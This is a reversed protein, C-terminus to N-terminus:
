PKKDRKTREKSPQSTKAQKQSHENLISQGHQQCLLQLDCINSQKTLELLEQKQKLQRRKKEIECEIEDEETTTKQKQDQKATGNIVKPRQMMYGNVEVWEYGAKIKDEFVNSGNDQFTKYKPDNPDAKESGKQPKQKRSSRQTVNTSIKSPPTKTSDTSMEKATETTNVFHCNHEWVKELVTIGSKTKTRAKGMCRNSGKNIYCQWHIIGDTTNQAHFKHKHGNVFLSPHIRKSPRIEIKFVEM